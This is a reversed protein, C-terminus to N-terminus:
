YYPVVARLWRGLTGTVGWSSRAPPAATPGASAPRPEAATSHEAAFFSRRNVMVRGRQDVTYYSHGLTKGSPSLVRMTGLSAMARFEPSFPYGWGSEVSAAAPLFAADVTAVHKRRPDPSFDPDSQPLRSEGAVTYGASPEHWVIGSPIPYGQSSEHLLAASMFDMWVPLAATAGHENRGLSVKADYGIWVGTTYTPSFGVFWADTCDDTTGTKGGLDNRRMRAVASATGSTCADRMISVMIFAAQPSLTRQFPGDSLAPEAVPAEGAPLVATSPAVSGAPGHSQGAEEPEAGDDTASFPVQSAPTVEPARPSEADWAVVDAVNLPPATNDELVNGFRDVVKKVLLPRVRIGMNPFATYAATLELPTVESVGLGLAINRRLPSTIGMSGAMRVANDTGVDMLVKIAPINRSHILAQRFTLPGSFTGDANSPVWLPERPDVAVAVPEDVIITEPSYWAWELAAAFVIPKFASGPQRRAQTARNFGSREFDIGGVLARVYGTGNEVCVLAGQIPPARQPELTLGTGDVAAIKFEVVDHPRYPFTSRLSSAFRVDGPLALTCPQLDTKKKERKSLKPSDNSIVLAQVVDGPSYTDLEPGHLFSRAEGQKLRRVLGAPRRQRKEWANVGAILAEAAKRQLSLDCTTWVQLGENYLRNEGYKALIYQRVTETFYPAEDHIGAPTEKLSPLEATATRFQEESIFGNRVMNNLVLERRKMGTDLTRPSSYRSPNQALGALFAAESINLERATKGFYTEAAAEVGYSGRGLYIENLYLELIENKTLTKELRFSLIAERVKRSIKKEKSLLFTRTVQQTITSGGQAFDRAQLNRIFARVVGIWDVGTHSFFRADEAALFANMVHPPLTELAVPFRKERYFMGIVTGDEAHFASVTKPRYARLDPISPLDKSFHVYLGVMTGVLGSLLACGAILPLGVGVWGLVSAFIRLPERDKKRGIV